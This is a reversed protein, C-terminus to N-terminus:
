QKRTWYRELSDIVDVGGVKIPKATNVYNIAESRPIMLTEQLIAQLEAEGTEDIKALLRPNQILPFSDKALEQCNLSQSTSM